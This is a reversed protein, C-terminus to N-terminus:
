APKEDRQKEEKDGPDSLSKKIERLTESQDRVLAKNTRAFAKITPDPIKRANRFASSIRRNEAFFARLLAKDFDLGDRASVKQGTITAYGSASDPLTISKSEAILEISDLLLKSEKILRDAFNRIEIMNSKDAIGALEINSLCAQRTVTLFQAASLATSDPTVATTESKKDNSNCSCLLSVLALFPLILTKKM